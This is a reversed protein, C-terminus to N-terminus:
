EVGKGSRKKGSTELQTNSDASLEGGEAILASMAKKFVEINGLTYGSDKEKGAVVLGEALLTAFLFAPSNSSKGRFVPLMASSTMPKDAPHGALIKEIVSLSVWNTNFQGNGSNQVVRIHVASDADNGVHYTLQSRGSLTSCAGIKITCIPIEPSVAKKAM